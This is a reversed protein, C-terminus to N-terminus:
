VPIPVIVTPLAVLASVTPGERIISVTKGFREAIKACRKPIIGRKAYPISRSKRGALTEYSVPRKGSIAALCVGYVDKVAAAADAIKKTGKGAPGIIAVVDDESMKSAGPVKKGKWAVAAGVYRKIGTGDMGFYTIATRHKPDRSLEALSGIDYEGKYIKVM